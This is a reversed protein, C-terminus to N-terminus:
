RWSNLKQWILFFVDVIMGTDVIVGVTDHKWGGFFHRRNNRDVCWHCSLVGLSKGSATGLQQLKANDRGVSRPALPSSPSPLGRWGSFRLFVRSVHLSKIHEFMTSLTEWKM